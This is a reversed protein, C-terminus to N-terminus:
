SIGERQVSQSLVETHVLSPEKTTNNCTLFAFIDNKDDNYLEIKKM